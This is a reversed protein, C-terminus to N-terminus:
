KDVEQGVAYYTASGGTTNVIRLRTPQAESVTLLNTQSHWQGTGSDIQVTEPWTGDEAPDLDRYVEADGNGGLETIDIAGTEASSGDIILEAGSALTETTAYADNIAM